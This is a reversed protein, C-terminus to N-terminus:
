LGIFDTGIVDVNELYKKADDENNITFLYVIIKNKRALDIIEQDYNNVPMSISQIKNNKCYEIFSEPTNLAEDRKEKSPCYLNFIKFNYITKVSEIMEITHGGVILRQLVSTDKKADKVIKKYFKITGKSSKRGIDVMVYMDKHTKMFETLDKFSMTSYKGHIKSNLFTNEDLMETTEDLNMRKQWGSHVLILNGDSSLKIDTEFLRFGKNYSAELAEKSNTYEHGEIGGLAHAIFNNNKVCKKYRYPNIIIYAKRKIKKLIEVM